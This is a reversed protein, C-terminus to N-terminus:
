ASASPAKQAAAIKKKVEDMDLGQVKRIVDELAAKPLAGPQAFVPIGDRFVMLTPISRIRFARALEQQEDTDIKGFVMDPHVESAAEFVPAFAKCPGCWTAWWDILVIGPKQITSKFNEHTIEVTSM